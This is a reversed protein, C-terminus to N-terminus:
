SNGSKRRKFGAGFAIAASAGLLTLPEPIPTTTSIVSIDDVIFDVSITPNAPDDSLRLTTTASDAIFDFQFTNFTTPDSGLDSLSTSLLSGNGGLGDLEVFISQSTGPFQTSFTGYIFQLQYSQGSVTTFSQSLIGDPIENGSNFNASFSGNGGFIATDV